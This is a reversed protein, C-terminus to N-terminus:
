VSGSERDGKSRRSEDDKSTGGDEREEERSGVSGAAGDEQDSEGGASNTRKKLAKSNIGRRNISDKTDKWITPWHAEKISYKKRM